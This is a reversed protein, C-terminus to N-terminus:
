TRSKRAKHTQRRQRARARFKRWRAKAMKRAKRTRQKATLKAWSAKGGKRQISAMQKRSFRIQVCDAHMADASDVHAQDRVKFDVRRKIREWAEPDEILVARIGLGGLVWGLSQLGLRKVARPGLVKGFLGAPGGGFTDLDELSINRHKRAAVLARRLGDYDTFEALPANV